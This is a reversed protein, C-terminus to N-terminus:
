GITCSASSSSSSSSSSAAGMVGAAAVGPDSGAQPGQDEDDDLALGLCSFLGDGEGEELLSREVM